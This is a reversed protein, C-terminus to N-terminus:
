HSLRGPVEVWGEKCSHNALLSYFSASAPLPGGKWFLTKEMISGMAERNRGSPVYTGWRCTTAVMIALTDHSPYLVLSGSGCCETRTFTFLAWHNLSNSQRETWLWCFGWQFIGLDQEEMECGGLQCWCSGLIWGSIRMWMVGNTGWQKKFVM